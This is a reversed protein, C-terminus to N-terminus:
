TINREFNSLYILDDGIPNDERSDRERLHVYVFLETGSDFKRVQSDSAYACAFYSADVSGSIHMDRIIM